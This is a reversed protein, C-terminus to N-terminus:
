SHDAGVAQVDPQNIIICINASPLEGIKGNRENNYINFLQAAPRGRVYGETCEIIIIM